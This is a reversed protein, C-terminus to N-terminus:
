PALILICTKSHKDWDKLCEDCYYALHYGSGKEDKTVAFYGAKMEVTQGDLYHIVRNQWNEEKDMDTPVMPNYEGTLAFDVVIDTYYSTLNAWDTAVKVKHMHATYMPVLIGILVAMIAIVVILEVLSFGRNQFFKKDKTM